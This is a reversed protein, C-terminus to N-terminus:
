GAAADGVQERWRAAYDALGPIEWAAAPQCEEPPQAEGWHALRAAGEAAGATTAALLVRREPALAALTAAFAPTKAFGGEVIWDGPAELRDLMLRTMLAVYLTALATRAQPTQPPPGEIRGQRSWFPGGADAFAPLALAGSAVVAAIDEAAIPAPTGALAAFERGGMFRATPTPRGLVDVNALMDWAPDLPGTGGVAMLIVWTGTSVVSFPDRRAVIHPVLSLNSDHAGVHVRVERSLGARAAVEPLIPSFDWADRRPPFLRAWGRGTVLSSLAAERPRWLDGHCALSTVESALEGTLKWFWFQPYLLFARARAFLEPYRREYYYVSRGVNLGRPARPSLTEEFAPRLADYEADIEGFGAFEYDMPPPSPGNDDVLVGSAGHTSISIATIPARANLEGLASLVFSWIRDVDMRPYPWQADAPLPANPESREAVLAGGDFLAVKLNTKGIDLAAVSM